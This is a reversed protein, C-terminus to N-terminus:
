CGYQRELRKIRNVEAMGASSPTGGTCGANNFYSQAKSTKFCYGAQDYILNRQYWLDHCSPRATQTVQPAPTPAPVPAPAAKLEEIQRRLAELEAAAQMEKVQQRLAALEAEDASTEPQAPAPAPATQMAQIQERLATLEDAVAKPVAHQGAQQVPQPAMQGASASLIASAALIDRMPVAYNVNSARSGAHHLAVVQQLGADIVPSGSNGPMTDCTHRLRNGAVAPADAQCQERSIRQAEGLPHGIVWLPSRDEIQVNALPLAGFEANADGIVQLVSYDLDKNTELPVPNVFFQKSGAEVGDVTYGLTLQAGLISTAGQEKLGPHELVGPICHNNTLVRNDSVLFATCPVSRINTLVDLRGVARGTRVFISNPGYNSIFENKYDGIQVELQIDGGLSQKATPLVTKGFATPDFTLLEQAQVATTAVLALIAFGFRTM